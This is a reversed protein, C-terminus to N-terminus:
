GTQTAVVRENSLGFTTGHKKFMAWYQRKGKKSTLATLWSGSDEVKIRAAKIIQLLWELFSLHYKGPLAPAQEMTVVQFQAQLVASSDVLRRLEFLVEEIKQEIERTQHKGSVERYQLIERRYDIGPAVDLKQPKKEAEYSLTAVDLEERERLEGRFSRQQREYRGLIQGWMDKAGDKLLDDGLSHILDNGLSGIGGMHGKLTEVQNNAPYKQTHQTTKKPIM